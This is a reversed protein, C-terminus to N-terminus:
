GHSELARPPSSSPAPGWVNVQEGGTLPGMWKPLRHFGFKSDHQAHLVESLAVIPHLGHVLLSFLHSHHSMSSVIRNYEEVTKKIKLYM